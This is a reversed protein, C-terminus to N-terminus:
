RRGPGSVFIAVIITAIIVAVGPHLTKKFITALKTGLVIRIELFVYQTMWPEAGIDEALAAAPPEGAGGGGGGGGKPWAM